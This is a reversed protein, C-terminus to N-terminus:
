YHRAFTRGLLLGKRLNQHGIVRSRRMRSVKGASKKEGENERVRLRQGRRIVRHAGLKNLKVLDSVRLGYKQAIVSLNEGRRVVHFTPERSEKGAPLRVEVGTVLQIGTGGNDPVKIKRGARVLVRNSLGNIRRLQSVTTHHKRAVTSLTEGRRVRYIAYEAMITTPQISESLPLAALADAARGVPIRVITEGGRALPVFDTRFKPNLLQIEEVDVKLNSALKTLSIPSALAVADYSLPDAYEIDPFGYKVPDKAILVAAIFKPVYQRTEPPLARRKQILAWFDRTMHKTVARKVRMEGVNYAAMALHWSGFLEYLAKFYEAAARTSLVPDRREDTFTDVTLGFRQGTGKIFQWYGVANAGSKAIPSFGSEILAIYVLDEPLGNERLTNKMMPLYRTSRALYSDMYKRGRGQFYAIWNEVLENHDLAIEGFSSQYPMEANTEVTESSVEKEEVPAHVSIDAGASAGADSGPM